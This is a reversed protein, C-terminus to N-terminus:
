SFVRHKLLLINEKVRSIITINLINKKANTIMLLISNTNRAHLNYYLFIYYIADDYNKYISHILYVSHMCNMIILLLM